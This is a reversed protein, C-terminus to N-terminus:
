NVSLIVDGKKINLNQDPTTKVDGIVPQDNIIGSFYVLISFVLISFIINTFPGALVTLARAKISANYFQKASSDEKNPIKRMSGPDADGAFKVFGGLPIACLKWIVGSRDQFWIIKPGFGISFEKVGIGCKKGIYFHGFEHVFIVLSFAGM